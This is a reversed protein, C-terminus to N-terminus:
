APQAGRFLDDCGCGIASAIAPIYCARLVKQGSLMRSFEANSMGCAEAIKCYKIGKEGAIDRINRIIADNYETNV